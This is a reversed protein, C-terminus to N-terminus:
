QERLFREVEDVLEDVRAVATEDRDHQEELHSVYSQTEPDESVLENIQHEYATSALELGDLSVTVGLMRSVRDVLALTAKPSPASAVYSPVAAWLSASNIGRQRCEAHLAGVIGTPGEYTSPELHLAEIVHPDYSTGFVSTPRSHPVDALLAGLTMILRAHVSEAVELV